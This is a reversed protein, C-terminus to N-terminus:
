GDAQEQMMGSFCASIPEYYSWDARSGVHNLRRLVDSPVYDFGHSKSVHKAAQYKKYALADQGLDLLQWEARKLDELEIAKRKAVTLDATRLAQRIQRVPQGSKGLVKGFLHKPVNLVFYYRGRDLTLGM